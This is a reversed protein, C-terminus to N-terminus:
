SRADGTETGPQVIDPIEVIEMKFTPTEGPYGRPNCLVRTDGVMYDFPDHVHGHFWLQPGKEALLQDWTNVYGPTIEDRVWRVHVSWISPAHHTVVISKDRGHKEIEDFIYKKAIQNQELVFEPTLFSTYIVGMEDVHEVRTMKYDSMGYKCALMNQEVTHPGYTFDTWCTGGIFKYGDIEVTDNMLVHVDIYDIERFQRQLDFFLHRYYEHNGPVFVIHRADDKLSLVAETLGSTGLGIDGALVLVDVPEPLDIYAQRPFEFHLDSVYAIKV